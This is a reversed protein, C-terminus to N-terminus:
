SPSRLEKLKSNSASGTSSSAWGARAPRRLEGLLIGSVGRAGLSVKGSARCESSSARWGSSSTRWGSSSAGGRSGSEGGRSSSAGEEKKHAARPAKVSRM